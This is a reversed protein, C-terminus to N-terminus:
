VAQAQIIPWDDPSSLLSPFLEISLHITCTRRTRTVNQFWMYLGSYEHGLYVVDVTVVCGLCVSCHIVSQKDVGFGSKNNGLFHILQEDVRGQSMNAPVFKIDVKKHCKTWAILTLWFCVYWEIHCKSRMNKTWKYGSWPQSLYDRSEQSKQDLSTEFRLFLIFGGALIGEGHQHTHHNPRPINVQFHASSKLFSTQLSMHILFANTESSHM